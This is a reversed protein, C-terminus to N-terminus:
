DLFWTVFNSRIFFILSLFLLGELILATKSPRWGKILSIVLTTLYPFLSLTMVYLSVGVIPRLVPLPRWKSDSLDPPLQGFKFSIALLYIVCIILPLLIGLITILRFIKVAKSM